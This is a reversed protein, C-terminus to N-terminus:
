FRVIGKCKGDVNFYFEKERSVRFSVSMLEGSKFVKDGSPLNNEVCYIYAIRPYEPQLFLRVTILHGDSGYFM